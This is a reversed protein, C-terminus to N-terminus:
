QPWGSRCTNSISESGARRMAPWHISRPPSSGSTRSRKSGAVLCFLVAACFCKLTFLMRTPLDTMGTLPPLLRTLALWLVVAVLLGAIIYGLGTRRRRSFDNQASQRVTM